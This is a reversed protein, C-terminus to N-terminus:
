EEKVDSFQNAFKQAEKVDAEADAQYVAAAEGARVGRGAAAKSMLDTNRVIGRGFVVVAVVCAAAVLVAVVVYEMMVAGRRMRFGHKKSM